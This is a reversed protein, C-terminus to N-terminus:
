GFDIGRPTTEPMKSSFPDCVDGTMREFGSDKDRNLWADALFSTARSDVESLSLSSAPWGRYSPREGGKRNLMDDFLAAFRPGEDTELPEDVLRRCTVGSLSAM